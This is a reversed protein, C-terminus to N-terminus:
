LAMAILFLFSSVNECGQRTEESRHPAITRNLTDDFLGNCRRLELCTIATWELLKEFIYSTTCGM